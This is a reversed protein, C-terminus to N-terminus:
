DEVGRVDLIRSDLLEAAPKRLLASVAASTSGSKGSAESGDM